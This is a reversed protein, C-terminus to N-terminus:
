IGKEKNLNHLEKTKHILVSMHNILKMSVSECPRKRESLKSTFPINDMTTAISHLNQRVDDFLGQQEVLEWFYALGKGFGRGVVSADYAFNIKDDDINEHANFIDPTETQHTINKINGDGNGSNSWNRHAKLSLHIHSYIM